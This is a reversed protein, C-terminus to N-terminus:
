IRGTKLANEFLEKKIRSPTSPLSLWLFLSLKSTSVCLKLNVISTEAPDCYFMDAMLECIYYFLHAKLHTKGAFQPLQRLFFRLYEKIYLSILQRHDSYIGRLSRVVTHKSCWSQSCLDSLIYNKSNFSSSKKKM